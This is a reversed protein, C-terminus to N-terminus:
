LTSIPRLKGLAKSSDLNKICALIPQLIDEAVEDIPKGADITIINHDLVNQFLKQFLERVRSQMKTTEYREDGFGGRKAADQPSIHLFILVDPKPLNVEMSWAWGLSLDPNEKAASYVAGSYSYRDIIVTVGNNIDSIISNVAEWRNASFILHIAHDNNQAKGTLYANIMQGTATTRDERTEATSILCGTCVSKGPFKVYTAPIGMGKLKDQLLMCQSSKGARDLGEIVVLTGRRRTVTTM